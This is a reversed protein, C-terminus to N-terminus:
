LGDLRNRVWIATTGVPNSARRLRPVYAGLYSVAGSLTSSPNQYTGGYGAFLGRKDSLAGVAITYMQRIVDPQPGTRPSATV